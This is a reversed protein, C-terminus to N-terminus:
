ASKEKGSGPGVFGTSCLSKCTVKQVCANCVRRRLLVALLVAGVGALALWFGSAPIAYTSFQGIIGEGFLMPTFPKMRIPAKPDLNHGFRYMWYMSDAIFGVPFMAAALAALNGLRRGSGLLLVLVIAALAAIGWGAFRREFEAAKELSAMGIYHNLLNIERVDGSVGRLSIELGLGKPYQPAFLWIRWWPLKLSTVWAAAASAWLAVVFWREGLKRENSQVVRLSKPARARTDNGGHEKSTAAM